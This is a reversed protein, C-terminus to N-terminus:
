LRRIDAGYVACDKLIREYAENTTAINISGEIFDKAEKLSTGTYNRVIKICEVRKDIVYPNVCKITCPGTDSLRAMFADKDEREMIHAMLKHSLRFQVRTMSKPEPLHGIIERLEDLNLEVAQTKEDAM